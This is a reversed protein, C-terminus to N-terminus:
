QYYSYIELSRSRTRCQLFRPRLINIPCLSVPAPYFNRNEDFDEWSSIGNFSKTSSGFYVSVFCCFLADWCGCMQKVLVLVLVLVLVFVFLLWGCCGACHHHNQCRFLQRPYAELQAREINSQTPRKTTVELSELNLACKPDLGM